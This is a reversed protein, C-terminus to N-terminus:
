ETPPDDGADQKGHIAEHVEERNVVVDSPSVIGLRVRGPRIEVVEITIDNGIMIREGVKRSLVLM